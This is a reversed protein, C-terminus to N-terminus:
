TRTEAPRRRLKQTLWKQAPEEVKATLLAAVWYSFFAALVFTGLVEWTQVPAAEEPKITRFAIVMAPIILVMHFLYIPFINHAMRSWVKWRLWGTAWALADSRAYFLTLTWGCIGIGFLARLLTEAWTWFTPGTMRYLMSAGDYIPLLVTGAILMLSVMLLLAWSWVPALAKRLKDHDRTVMFAMALGLFFPSSRFWILHYLDDRTPTSRGRLLMEPLTVDHFHPDGVIAAYRAGVGLVLLVGLWMLPRKSAHLALVLWPLVVYMQVLVELSWGPPIITRAGVVHNIFLLNTLFDWPTIKAAFPLYLALALLYIPVIRVFRRLYFDRVNIAGTRGKERLLLYGLLFASFLFILESGMAHWAFNFVDPFRAIFDLLDADDVIRSLGFLVHFFIVLLIGMARMGDIIQRNHEEDLLM